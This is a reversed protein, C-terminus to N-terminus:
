EVRDPQQTIRQSDIMQEDAAGHGHDRQKRDCDLDEEGNTNEDATASAARYAREPVEGDHRVVLRDVDSGVIRLKRPLRDHPGAEHPEQQTEAGPMRRNRRQEQHHDRPEPLVVHNRDRDRGDCPQVDAPIPVCTRCRHKTDRGAQESDGDADDDESWVEEQVQKGVPLVGQRVDNSIDAVKLPRRERNQDPTTPSEVIPRRVGCFERRKMDTETQRGADQLPETMTYGSVGLEIQDECESYAEAHRKRTDLCCPEGLPDARAM